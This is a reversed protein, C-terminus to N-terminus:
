LHKLPDMSGHLIRVITVGHAEKLYFLIHSEYPFSLLGSLLLDRKVGLEPNDALIQLKGELNNLYRKAQTAGWSSVTFDIIDEIDKEAKASFYFFAM